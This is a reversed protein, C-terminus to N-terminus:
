RWLLSAVTARLKGLDFPKDFLIAGLARAQAHAADDAFATMLIFPVQWRAARVEELVQLGSHGPMRVDSLVLDWTGTHTSDAMTGALAVLLRKGDAIAMVDYGDKRLAEALLRRMEDDDEALLIRPPDHLTAPRLDGRSPMGM